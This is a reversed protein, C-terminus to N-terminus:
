FPIDSGGIGDLSDNFPDSGGGAPAQSAATNGGATPQDSKGGLFQMERAEIESFYRTQGDKEYKRHVQKGAIFVASGKRLYEAAVEAQRRFMKVNHWTTDERKEGTKKDKWKETTAVSFTTVPDGSPMYKTTPDGGLHGMIEIRNYSPM